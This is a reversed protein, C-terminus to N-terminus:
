LPRPRWSACKLILTACRQSLAQDHLKAISGALEGAAAADAGAIIAEIATGRTEPTHLTTAKAFAATPDLQAWAKFFTKIRASNQASPPLGDLQQALRAVEESGQRSLIEYVEQFPVTTIDGLLIREDEVRQKEASGSRSGGTSSGARSSGTTGANNVGRETPGRLGDALGGLILGLFLFGLSRRM